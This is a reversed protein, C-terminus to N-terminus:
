RNRFSVKGHPWQQRLQEEVESALPAKTTFSVDGRGQFEIYTEDPLKPLTPLYATVDTLRTSVNYQMAQIGVATNGCKTYHLIFGDARGVATFAPHSLPSIDSRIKETCAERTYQTRDVPKIFYEYVTISEFHNDAPGVLTKTAAFDAAYSHPIDHNFPSIPDLTLEVDGFFKVLQVKTYKKKNADSAVPNIAEAVQRDQEDTYNEPLLMGYSTEGSPGKWTNIQVESPVVAALAAAVDTNPASSPWPTPRATTTKPTSVVIDETQRTTSTTPSATPASAPRNKPVFVVMALVALGVLGWLGLIVAKRQNM